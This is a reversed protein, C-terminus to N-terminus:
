TVMVGHRKKAAKEPENKEHKERKTKDHKELVASV